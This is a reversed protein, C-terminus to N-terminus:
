QWPGQIFVMQEQLWLPSSICSGMVKVTVKTGVPAREGEELEHCISHAAGPEQLHWTIKCNGQILFFFFGLPGEDESDKEM